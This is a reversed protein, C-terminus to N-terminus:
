LAQFNGPRASMMASGAADLPRAEPFQWRGDLIERRPRYLRVTYNWGPMVPLCNRVGAGCGGFQVTYGGDADRAATVNNLSWANQPNPEMFGERNYVTISWFAGVPVDRVNLRHITAGDNRTPAVNVYKADAVPNGGWGAATGILHHVPNVQERTGFMRNTPIGTGVQRLANRIRGLSTEDWAPSEFRGPGGPQEVRIADQLRNVAALDAPDNPDVFIRVLLAIYRTRFQRRAFRHTGPAYFAAPSYHDEDIVQLSLFRRGPDPLVVSVPGADLDIVATSYLTDRNMRVVTQRSIDVLARNHILRGLGGGRVFRAFYTDTEARNFTDVTVPQPPAPTQAQLLAAAAAALTTLITGM